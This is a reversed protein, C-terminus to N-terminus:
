LYIILSIIILPILSIAFVLFFNVLWIYFFNLRGRVEPNFIDALFSAAIACCVFWFVTFSSENVVGLAASVIGAALGIGLVKCHNKTFSTVM